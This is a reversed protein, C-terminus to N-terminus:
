KLPVADLGELSLSKTPLSGHVVDLSQSSAGCLDDADACCILYPSPLNQSAIVILIKTIDIRRTECHHLAQADVHKKGEIRMKGGETGLTALGERIDLEQHSSVPGRLRRGAAGRHTGHAG